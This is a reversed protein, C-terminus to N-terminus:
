NADTSFLDTDFGEGGEEGDAGLSIIVFDKGSDPYREYRFENDWEDLPLETSDLYGGSPWNSVDSPQEILEQLGVSEDPYRGQDMKFQVVAQHLTKLNAKTATVRAKDIHGVVNRAVVGFLLGMIILVAMLEIMTFGHQRRLLQKEKM